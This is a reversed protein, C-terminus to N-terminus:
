PGATQLLERIRGSSNPATLPSLRFYQHRVLGGGLPGPQVQPSPGAPLLQRTPCRPPLIKRFHKAATRCQVILTGFFRLMLISGVFLNAASFNVALKSLFQGM